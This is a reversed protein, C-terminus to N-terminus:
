ADRTLGTLVQVVRAIRREVNPVRRAYHIVLELTQEADFGMAVVRQWDDFVGCTRARDEAPRSPAPRSLPQLLAAQVSPPLHRIAPPMQARPPRAARELRRDPVVELEHIDAAWSAARAFDVLATARQGRVNLAGGVPVGEPHIAVLTGVDGPRVQGGWGFAPDPVDSRVRVRDGVVLPTDPARELDAFHFNCVHTTGILRVRYSTTTASYAVALGVSDHTFQGWGMVPDTVERRIRV